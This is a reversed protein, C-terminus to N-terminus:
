LPFSYVTGDLVIAFHNRTNNEGLAAAKQTFDAFTKTATGNLDLSVTWQVRGSQPDPPLAQAKTVQEGSIQAPALIFKFDSKHTKPDPRACIAAQKGPNLAQGQGVDNGLCTLKQFQAKVASSPYLPEVLGNAALAGTWDHAALIVDPADTAAVTGLGTQIDGFNKSVVKVTAGAASAWTNAVQTVAPDRNADTWIVITPGAKHSAVASSAAVAASIAAVGLLAWMRKLNQM